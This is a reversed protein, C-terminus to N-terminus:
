VMADDYNALDFSRMRALAACQPSRSGSRNTTLDRLQEGKVALHTPCMRRHALKMKGGM